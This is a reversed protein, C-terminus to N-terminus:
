APLSSGGDLLLNQRGGIGLLRIRGPPVRRPLRPWARPAAAVKEQHQQEMTVLRSEHEAEMDAAGSREELLMKHIDACTAKSQQLRNELKGGEVKSAVLQLCSCCVSFVRPPAHDPSSAGPFLM